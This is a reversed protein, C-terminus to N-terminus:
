RSGGGVIQLDIQQIDAGRRLEDVLHDNYQVYALAWHKNTGRNHIGHM